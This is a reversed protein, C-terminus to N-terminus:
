KREKRIVMRAKHSTLYATTEERVEGVLQFVPTFKIIGTNNPRQEVFLQGNEINCQEVACSVTQDDQVEDLSNIKLPYGKM